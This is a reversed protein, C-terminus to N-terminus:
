PLLRGLLAAGDSCGDARRRAGPRGETPGRRKGERGGGARGGERGTGTVAKAGRRGETTGPRVGPLPPRGLGRGGSPGAARGGRDNTVEHPVHNAFSRRNPRRGQ